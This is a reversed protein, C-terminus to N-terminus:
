NLLRKEGNAVIFNGAWVSLMLKSNSDNLRGRAAPGSPQQLDQGNERYDVAM